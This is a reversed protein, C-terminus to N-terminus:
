KERKGQGSSKINVIKLKQMRSRLHRESIGLFGAAQSQNGEKLTLAENIMASEFAAVKQSYNHEIQLPDLLLADSQFDTSHLPLDGATIVQDRTMIVAREIMNELERINGPYHYQMLLYRAEKSIGNIKKQNQSAYKSIFHDVLLPIDEKRERLPPITITVVNIRYFLDERFEGSRIMEELNRNTATLVRVNTKIIQSGGVREIEGFQLARLLKVQTQPSIDGIEDIFLTGGDAQEFRGRHLNIAGTFAGKEHGFLESELLNASLASCNVTVLPKDARDSSYHIARAILEKGTGSEGQILVTAKSKAVRGAANLVSEMRGSQSLIADFKFREKIQQKLLKNESILRNLDYVKQVLLELEDLNVPKSIYDFAGSKMVNVADETQSYATIIVVPIHPNYKKIQKLVEMGSMDPMRFDTLVFDVATSRILQLGESGSHACLIKYGRRQLFSKLSTVQAPEDDILLINFDVM